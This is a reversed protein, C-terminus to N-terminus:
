SFLDLLMHQMPFSPPEEIIEEESGKSNSFETCASCGQCKRKIDENLTKWYYHSRALQQTVQYGMHPLHLNELIKKRALRPIFIRHGGVTILAQKYEETIGITPWSMLLEKMPHEFHMKKIDAKELGDRICRIVENYDKNNRASELIIQLAPDDTSNFSDVRMVTQGSKIQNKDEVHPYFHEWSQM